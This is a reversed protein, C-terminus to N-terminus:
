IATIPDLTMSLSSSFLISQVEVIMKGNICARFTNGFAIGGDIAVAYPSIWSFCHIQHGFFIKIDENHTFTYWPTDKEREKSM